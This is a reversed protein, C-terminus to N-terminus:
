CSLSRRTHVVQRSSGDPNQFLNETGDIAAIIRETDWGVITSAYKELSKPKDAETGGRVYVGVIRKGQMNAQEIEYNVWPRLHTDKGILVVVTGAWSIKMHLLRKITKDSVLGQELRRQNAPKARISSNRIDYNSRKLLSILKDVETDDAHHHSIFIHRRRNETNM